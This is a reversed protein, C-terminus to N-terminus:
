NRLTYACTKEEQERLFFDNLAIPEALEMKKKAYNRIVGCATACCNACVYNKIIKLYRRFLFPQVELHCNVSLFADTKCHYWFIERTM